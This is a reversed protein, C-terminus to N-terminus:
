INKLSNHINKTIKNKIKYAIYQHIIVKVLVQLMNVFMVLSNRDLKGNMQRLVLLILIKVLIPFM